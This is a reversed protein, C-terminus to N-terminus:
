WSRVRRREAERDWTTRWRIWGSSLHRRTHVMLLARKFTRAVVIRWRALRVARVARVIVM